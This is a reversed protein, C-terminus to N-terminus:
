SKSSVKQWEKKGALDGTGRFIIEDKEADIVINSKEKIEGSVIKLALSDLVM